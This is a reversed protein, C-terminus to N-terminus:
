YKQTIGYLDKQLLPSHMRISSVWNSGYMLIEGEWVYTIQENPWAWGVSSYSTNSSDVGEPYTIVGKSEDAFVWNDGEIGNVLLNSVEPNTYMLNLMQMAKEPNKSNNAICWSANVMSTTSHPAGNEM